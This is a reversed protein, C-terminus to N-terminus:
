CHPLEPPNPALGHGRPTPTAGASTHALQPGAPGRSLPAQSAPLTIGQGSPPPGLCRLAWLAPTREEFGLGVSLLTPPRLIAPAQGTSVGCEEPVVVLLGPGEEELSHAETPFPPQPAISLARAQHGLGLYFGHQAPDPRAMPLGLLAIWLPESSDVPIWVKGPSVESHRIGTGPQLQPDHPSCAPGPPHPASRGPCSILLRHAAGHPLVPRCQPAPVGGERLG